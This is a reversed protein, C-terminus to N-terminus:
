TTQIYCKLLNCKNLIGSIKVFNDLFMMLKFDTFFLFFFSFIFTLLFFYFFDLKSNFNCLDSGNQATFKVTFNFNVTNSFLTCFCFLYITGSLIHDVM